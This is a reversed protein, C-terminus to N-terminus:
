LSIADIELHHKRQEENIIIVIKSLLHNLTTKQLAGNYATNSM